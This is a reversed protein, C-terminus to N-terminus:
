PEKGEQLGHLAAIFAEAIAKQMREDAILSDLNGKLLWEREVTRALWDPVYIVGKM